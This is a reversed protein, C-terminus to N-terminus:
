KWTKKNKLAIYPFFAFNYIMWGVDFFPFLYILKKERIKGAMVSWLVWYVKCRIGMLLLAAAWHFPLLTFYCIWGIAHTIGYLSLLWKIHLKYYKGTSLHRQKQAAWEKWTAKADSYTFAARATVVATNHATGAIRVLLDDDGSPLANWLPDQQAKQLVRKTCAMNRGVAMYPMGAKAYTRYQLYTHLTEWRIFANLIGPARNYGGYGAAIEKGGGLPTIMRELWQDSFPKCDADTLLLWDYSAHEVGKSLAFKKGQLTREETPSIIVDWLNDYQQELEQLVQATNDTSADNVVIVEFKGAYKQSLVSPLNKRLQEAENKACIIVSVGKPEALPTKRSPAFIRIFFYVAYACQVVIASIFIWVIM